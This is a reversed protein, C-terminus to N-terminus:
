KGRKKGLLKSKLKTSASEATKMKNWSQLRKGFQETSWPKTKSREVYQTQQKQVADGVAM